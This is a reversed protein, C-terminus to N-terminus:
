IEMLFLFLLWAFIWKGRHMANRQDPVTHGLLHTRHKEFFFFFIQGAVFRGKGRQIEATM